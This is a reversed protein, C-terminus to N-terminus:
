RAQSSRPAAGLRYIWYRGGETTEVQFYDRVSLPTEAKLGGAQRWEGHLREAGDARVVRYRKGRWIFMAPQHDPLM